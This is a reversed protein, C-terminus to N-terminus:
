PMYQREREGCIACGVGGERCEPRRRDAPGQPEVVIDQGSGREPRATLEGGVHGTAM